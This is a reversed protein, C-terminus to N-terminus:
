AKLCNVIFESLTDWISALHNSSPFFGKHHVYKHMTNTSLLAENHEFKVLVEYTNKDILGMTRQHQVVKRFKKALKDNPHVDAVNKQNVYNEVSLELLVRFLVSIANDHQGFKLKHQLEEWIDTARKIHVAQPIEYNIWHRILTERVNPPPPPSPAPSPEPEPEPQPSPSPSPTLGPVDEPKGTRFDIREILQDHITPLVGEAELRNLYERKKENTLLHNLNLEGSALDSVIRVLSELSKKIDRIFEAKNNKVSIGVRSRFEESSLLRSVNTHKITLDESILSETRLKEEILKPLDLKSSKGTREVFHVKAQNSWTIQGVGDRSGTHIRFLYDDIRDQDTEIQCDIRTPPKLAANKKAKAFFEQWEETPAMEPKNLLKLCTVRRNGDHVLYNGDSQPSVFTLVKVEGTECLDKALNKMKGPLSTLLQKIAAPEDVVEGHRDNNPNVILKSIPIRKIVRKM